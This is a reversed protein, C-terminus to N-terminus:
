DGSACADGASCSTRQILKLDRNLEPVDSLCCDVCELLKQHFPSKAKALRYHHWLGEKRAEVLGARRLYALHRSVKAQPAELVRMLDCVCTEGTRLINLIRLRTRDSFAKFLTDASAPTRPQTAAHPM